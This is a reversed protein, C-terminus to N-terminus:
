SVPSRASEWLYYTGAGGPPCLVTDGRHPDQPEFVAPVFGALEGQEVQDYPEEYWNFSDSFADWECSWPEPLESDPIRPWDSVRDPNGCTYDLGRPTYGFTGQKPRVHAIFLISPLHEVSRHPACTGFRASKAPNPDSYGVAFPLTSRCRNTQPPVSGVKV